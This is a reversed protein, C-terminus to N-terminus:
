PFVALIAPSFNVGRTKMCLLLDVSGVKVEDNPQPGPLTQPPKLGISKAAAIHGQTLAYVPQTLSRSRRYFLPQSVEMVYHVHGGHEM